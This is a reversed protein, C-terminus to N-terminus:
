DGPGVPLVIETLAVILKLALMVSALLSGTVQVQFCFPALVLVGGTVIVFPTPVEFAANAGVAECIPNLEKSSRM